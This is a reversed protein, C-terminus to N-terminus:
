LKQTFSLYSRNTSSNRLPLMSIKLREKRRRKRMM